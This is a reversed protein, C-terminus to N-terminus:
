DGTADLLHWAYSACALGPKADSDGRLGLVATRGRPPAQFRYPLAGWFSFALIVAVWARFPLACTEQSVCISRRPELEGTDPNWNAKLDGDLTEVQVLDEIPDHDAHASGSAHHVVVGASPADEGADAPAVWTAKARSMRDLTQKPNGQVTTVLTGPHLTDKWAFGGAGAIRVMFSPIVCPDSWSAVFCAVLIAADDFLWSHKRKSLV